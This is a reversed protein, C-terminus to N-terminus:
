FAEVADDGAIDEFGLLDKLAQLDDGHCVVGCVLKVDIKFLVFGFQLPQDEFHDRSGGLAHVDVGHQDELVGM